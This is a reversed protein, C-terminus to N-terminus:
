FQTRKKPCKHVKIPKKASFNPENRLKAVWRGKGRRRKARCRGFWWGEVGVGTRSPGGPKDMPIPSDGEDDDDDEFGAHRVQGARVLTSHSSALWELGPPPALTGALRKLEDSM